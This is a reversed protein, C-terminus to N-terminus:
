KPIKEVVKREDQEVLVKIEGRRLNLQPFLERWSQSLINISEIKRENDNRVTFLLRKSQWKM